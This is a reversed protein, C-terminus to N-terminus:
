PVDQSLLSPLSPAARRRGARVSGALSWCFPLLYPVKKGFKEYEINIYSRQVSEVITAQCQGLALVDLVVLSTSNRGSHFLCRPCGNAM